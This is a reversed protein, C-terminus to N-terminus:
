PLILIALSYEYEKRRFGTYSEFKLRDVERRGLSILGKGKTVCFPFFFLNNTNKETSGRSIEM